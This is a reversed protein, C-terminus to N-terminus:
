PAASGSDSPQFENGRGFIMPGIMSWVIGGLVLAVALGLAFKLLKM